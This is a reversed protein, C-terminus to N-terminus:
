GRVGGEGKTDAMARTGEGYGQAETRVGFVLAWSCLESARGLGM